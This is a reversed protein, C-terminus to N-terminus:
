FPISDDIDAGPANPHSSTGTTTQTEMVPMGAPPRVRICDVIRGGFDTKTPYVTIQRGGWGDTDFGHHEGIQLANTKNCVLTKETESFSIVPKVKQTGNEEFQKIEVGRITLTWDKGMLDEAKLTNSGTFIQDIPPMNLEKEERNMFPAFAWTSKQATTTLNM